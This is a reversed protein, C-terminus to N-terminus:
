KHWEQIVCNNFTDIIIYKYITDRYENLYNFLIENCIHLKDDEILVSDPGNPSDIDRADYVIVHYRM